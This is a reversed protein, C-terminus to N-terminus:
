SIIDCLRDTFEESPEYEPSYDFIEGYGVNGETNELCPSMVRGDGLTIWIGELSGEADGDIREGGDAKLAASLSNVQSQSVSKVRYGDENRYKWIVMPSGGFLDVDTPAVKLAETEERLGDLRASLTYGNESYSTEPLTAGGDEAYGNDSDSKSGMGGIIGGIAVMGIALSGLLLTAAVTLSLAIVIFKKLFASRRAPRYPTAAEAIFRDDILGIEDFLRQACRYRADKTMDTM